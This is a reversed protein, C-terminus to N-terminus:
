RMQLFLNTGFTFGTSADKAMYQDNLFYAKACFRGWFSYMGSYCAILTFAKDNGSFDSVSTM